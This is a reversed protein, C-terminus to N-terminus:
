IRPTRKSLAKRTTRIPLGHEAMRCEMLYFFVDREPARILAQEHAEALAVPYGDGKRAQDLCLAHTQALMEPDDAVWRPIEVRAIEFGTNLYFFGIKQEPPYSDLITAASEFVASREGPQLVLAFLEADTIRETGACPPPIYEARPKVSEPCYMECHAQPHPCVSVRLANLVDRSAPLSVYGALPIGVLRFAEWHTFLEALTDTRFKPTESSLTWLIPSGDFLAIAPVHPDHQAALESLAQFESLQRRIGLRRPSIAATEQPFDDLLNEDPQALIPRSTLEAYADPNYHLSILGVNLLYCLAIDHRDTVIQSSDCAFVTCADPISPAAVVLSPSERLRAVLWSTRSAAIRAQLTEWESPTRKLRNRAEQLADHRVPLLSLQDQTFGRIQSAIVALDLM